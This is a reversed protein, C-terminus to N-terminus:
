NLSSGTWNIFLIILKRSFLGKPRYSLSYYFELKVGKSYTESFKYSSFMLISDTLNNLDSMAIFGSRMKFITMSIVLLIDLVRNSCFFFKSSM